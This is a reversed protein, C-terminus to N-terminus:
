EIPIEALNDMGLAAGKEIYGNQVLLYAVVQLYQREDLSGPATQPMATSVYQLLGQATHYSALEADVGIVAPGIYGGGQNGHCQACHRRFVKQGKAALAGAISSPAAALLGGPGLAIMAVLAYALSMVALARMLRACARKEM